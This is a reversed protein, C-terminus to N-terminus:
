FQLRQLRDASERDHLVLFRSTTAWCQDSTTCQQMTYLEKKEMTQISPQVRVLDGAKAHVRAVARNFPHKARPEIKCVKRTFGILVHVAALTLEAARHGAIWDSATLEDLFALALLGIHRTRKEAANRQSIRQDLLLVTAVAWTLEPMRPTSLWFLRARSDVVTNDPLTACISAARQFKSLTLRCLSRVVSLAGTRIHTNGTSVSM